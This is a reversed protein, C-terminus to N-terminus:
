GIKKLTKVLVTLENKLTNWIIEANVDFYGHILRNRIAVIEKWPINSYKKQFDNSIKSAAEGVIEIEKIVALLLKRDKQFGLLDTSKTFEMAEEIALVM